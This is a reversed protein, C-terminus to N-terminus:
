NKVGVLITILVQTHDLHHKHNMYLSIKEGSRYLQLRGERATLDNDQIGMVRCINYGGAGLMAVFQRAAPEFYKDWMDEVDRVHDPVNFSVHLTSLNGGESYFGEPDFDMEGINREIAEITRRLLVVDPREEHGLDKEVQEVIEEPTM